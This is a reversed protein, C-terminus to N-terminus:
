GQEVLASRLDGAVIPEHSTASKNDRVWISIVPLSLLALIGLVLFARAFGGALADPLARGVHLLATTHGDAVSSALAIGIVGGLQQSTNLLGSALGAEHARIGSLAAVSIPIFSFATGAGAVAMPGALNALFHGEAPVQTAWIVGGGIMAMGAVMVPRAGVRTVLLQSVGALALSTVSAAMWAAGTQLSSYHLVEQMYLTGAFVFAYFSAGLLLGTVNAAALTPLRFIGLPLIPEAARAEIAVFVVLLAIAGALLLLTRASGWGYQPAQSIADVLLVMGGTGTLAGALDFRRTSAERRSEPVVRRTLALATVGIPVNLYFIYEWGLYRTIFGGAILGITGGGAGVGGWIGLAKNREAGEPFLNMVIALSAPLMFAAGVGQVARSAILFGEGPALACALSAIAFVTLGSVFVRRRGLLDAARGGFLMLGGFTLGYATVVWQLNTAGFHLDRGITPLSVNVITFDVVTMFYAVALLVFARWRNTNTHTSTM